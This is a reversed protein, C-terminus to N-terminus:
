SLQSLDGPDGCLGNPVMWLPQMTFHELRLTPDELFMSYIEKQDLFCANIVPFFNYNRVCTLLQLDTHLAALVRHNKGEWIIDWKDENKKKEYIYRDAYMCRSIDPSLSLFLYLQLPNGQHSLQYLVQRCYPLGLNSGQTPFITQLLSLSGVGTDQGPSDWPTYLGQPRLSNSVVSRSECVCSCLYVLLCTRLYVSLTPLNLFLCISLCTSLNLHYISINISKYTDITIFLWLSPHCKGRRKKLWKSFHIGWKRSCKKAWKYIWCSVPYDVCVAEGHPDTGLSPFTSRNCGKTLGNLNKILIIFLCFFFFWM